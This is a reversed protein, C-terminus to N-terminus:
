HFYLIGNPGEAALGICIGLDIYFRPDLGYTYAVHLYAEEHERFAAHLRRLVEQSRFVGENDAFYILEGFPIDRMKSPDADCAIWFQHLPDDEDYEINPESANGTAVMLARRFVLYGGYSACCHEKRGRMTYVGDQFGPAAHPFAANAYLYYTESELGPDPEVETIREGNGRLGTKWEALTLMHLLHAEEFATIDLGM